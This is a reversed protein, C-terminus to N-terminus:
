ASLHALGVPTRAPLARRAMEVGRSIVSVKEEDEALSARCAGCLRVGEAVVPRGCDTCEPGVKPVAPLEAPLEAPLKNVLRYRVLGKASRVPGDVPASLVVELQAAKAGRRLWEAALPVLEAVEAFGLTLRADRRGLGSLVKACEAMQNDSLDSGERGEEESREGAAPVEQAAEPGSPLHSNEEQTKFPNEASPGGSQSGTPPNQDDPAVQAQDTQPVNHVATSTWIRGTEPDKITQRTYYGHEVLLDVAKKV